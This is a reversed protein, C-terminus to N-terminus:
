VATDPIRRHEKTLRTIATPGGPGVLSSPAGSFANTTGGSAFPQQCARGKGPPAGRATGRGVAHISRGVRGVRSPWLLSAPAVSARQHLGQLLGQQLGGPRRGPRRGPQRHPQRHIGVAAAIQTPSAAMHDRGKGTPADVNGGAGSTFDNLLSPLTSGTVPATPPSAHAVSRSSPRTPWSRAICARSCMRPGALARYARGASEEILEWFQFQLTCAPFGCTRMTPPSPPVEASCPAAPLLAKFRALRRGAWFADSGVDVRSRM